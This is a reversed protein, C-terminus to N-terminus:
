CPCKLIELRRAQWIHRIRVVLVLSISANDFHITNDFTFLRKKRLKFLISRFQFFIKVKNLSHWTLFQLLCLFAQSIMKSVILDVVLDFVYSQNNLYNNFTDNMKKSKKEKNNYWIFKMFDVIKISFKRKKEWSMDRFKFNRNLNLIQGMINLLFM